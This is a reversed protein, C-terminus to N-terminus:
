KPFKKLAFFFFFYIFPAYIFRYIRTEIGNRAIHQALTNRQMILSSVESWSTPIRILEGTKLYFLMGSDVNVSYRDSLLLTYLILQARHGASTTDRGTKLELPVILQKTQLPQQQQPQQQRITRKHIQNFHLNTIFLFV